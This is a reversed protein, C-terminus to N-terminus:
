KIRIKKIFAKNYGSEVISSLSNKADARSAFNGVIYRYYGDDGKLEKVNEINSFKAIDAQKKTAMLQITYTADFNDIRIYAKTYGLEKVRSLTTLANNMSETSGVSYRYYGEPTQTIEINDIGKFYNEDVQNKSAMLQVAYVSIKVDSNSSVTNEIKIVPIEKKKVEIPKKIEKPKEKPKPTEVKVEKKPPEAIIIPKPKEIKVSDKKVPLTEAILKPQEVPVPIPQMLAEFDFEKVYNDDSISIEKSFPIFKSNKVYVVYNGQGVKQLFNKSSPSELKFITDNKDKDFISVKFPKDANGAQATIKGNLNTYRSINIQAIDKKGLGNKDYYSIIGSKCGNSPFYFEDNDTTNAPYGLNVVKQAGELNVYYIDFGGLGEHGESSFFLYKEDPSLFPTSENYPTNIESGLNVPAGWVGKENVTAKYIDFGGLGGKRDSTFYMTNGDKSLCVHTENSKTNIPKEFKLIKSWKNKEFASVFIDCNEPDDSTLYLVKGDDSLFSTLLYKDGLQTTIKKPATWSDNVKNSIFIDNSLKGITTFALTNGDGSLVANVNPLDNNIINGLNVTNVSVSDKLFDNANKCNAINIDVLGILEDKPDLLEKYKQYNEIAKDYQQNIRYLEALLFISLLPAKTEKLSSENYDPSADEAAEQLYNLAENKKDDTNLYCYGIRFKINANDPTIKLAKQFTEAAKDFQKEFMFNEADMQYMFMKNWDQSFISNTVFFLCILVILRFERM